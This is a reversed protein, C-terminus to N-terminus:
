QKLKHSNLVELGKRYYLPPTLNVLVTAEDYVHRDISVMYFDLNHL